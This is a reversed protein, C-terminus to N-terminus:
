KYEDRNSMEVFGEIQPITFGDRYFLRYILTKPIKYTESISDLAKKIEGPTLGKDSIGVGGESVEKYTKLFEEATNKWNEAVIPLARAVVERLHPDSDLYDLLNQPLSTRPSLFFDTYTPDKTYRKDFENKEKESLTTVAEISEDRQPLNPIATGTLYMNCRAIFSELDFTGNQRTNDLEVVINGFISFTYEGQAEDRIELATELDLQNMIDGEYNRSVAKMDLQAGRISDEAFSVLPATNESNKLARAALETMSYRPEEPHSFHEVNM